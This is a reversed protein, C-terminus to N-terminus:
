IYFKFPLPPVGETPGATLIEGVLDAFRLTVPLGDSFGANNFNLKTLAMLDSLVQEIDAEGRVIDITLPNPVERGPYTDLRPIFGVTWLYASRRSAAVMATGRLVPRAGYRFLKIENQRRIRIGVVKTEHPVTSSFGAWENPDLWTKGHIFLESPPKGHIEVYAKVVLDMLAAAQSQNLHFSNDTESYWPGVAGKFVVGDGSSLFMQAGCCANDRTRANDIRKFVLGVYCVGDRISAIRWPRGGAKYFSTTSLNWAVSAKDQLSRRTGEEFDEPTLTTERVVQIVEGTDLLRAKLQNHFNLEYEYIAAAEVEERFMSGSQLISKAARKGFLATSRERQDRPVTSKPRGYRFVEEPVVAFWLQPRAEEERLYRRIAYAYVAVAEFIAEHRNEIRIRRSLEAADIICTSFPTTPWPVGFVAHFGPWMMKNEEKGKEPAAIQASLAGVWRAYRAIGQSTGIVGVDMRAPNQNSAPPGFLFLGDKPYEATQSFGFSLHPEPVHTLRWENM